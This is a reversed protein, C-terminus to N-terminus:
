ATLTKEYIMITEDPVFGLEHNLALMGVNDTRNDTQVRAIGRDAAYRTAMMKLARAIGRRRHTGIVGTDGVEADGNPRMVLYSLGVIQERDRAVFVAESSAGPGELVKTIWKEAPPDHWDVLEEHPMDHEIQMGCRYLARRAAPSDIQSFPATEVGSQHLRQRLDELGELRVRAPEQMSSQYRELEHFGRHALFPDAFRKDREYFLAELWRVENRSAFDELQTALSGGIGIGRHGPAVMIFSEARDVYRGGDEGLNCEATAILQDGSTWAGLRLVPEDPARLSESFLFRERDMPWPYAQNRLRLWSDLENPKLPHISLQDPSL